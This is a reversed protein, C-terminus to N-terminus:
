GDGSNRLDAYALLHLSSGSLPISGLDESTLYWWQIWSAIHKSGVGWRRKLMKQNIVKFFNPFLSCAGRDASESGLHECHRSGVSLLWSYLGPEGLPPLSGIESAM